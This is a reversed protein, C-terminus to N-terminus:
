ILEASRNSLKNFLFIGIILSLLSYILVGFIMWLPPFRSYIMLDRSISIFYYMPNFLNLYFLRTQGGFEYFIPTALWISRSLFGWIHSLDFFYAGLSSLILGCGFSFVSLFFIIVPYFLLTKIPVEFFLLFLIFVLIEFIHAFFVKIVLAGVLSEKPFNISKIIGKNQRIIMVSESSIKAFYDFLILGLLLYLPYYPIESGLRDTFIGLLLLFTLLPGLIYWFVGLFTGENKLKFEIKALYFSLRLKDKFNNIRM